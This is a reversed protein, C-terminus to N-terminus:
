HILTLKSHTAYTKYSTQHFPFHIPLKIQRSIFPPLSSGDRGLHLNLSKGQRMDKELFFLAATRMGMIQEDSAADDYGLFNSKPKGLM